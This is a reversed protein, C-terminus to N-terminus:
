ARKTKKKQDDAVPHGSKPGVAVLHDGKASRRPSQRAIKELVLKAFDAELSEDVSHLIVQQVAEDQNALWLLAREVVFKQDRDWRDMLKRSAATADKTVTVSSREGM